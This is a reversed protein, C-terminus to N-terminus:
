RRSAQVGDAKTPRAAPLNSRRPLRDIMRKGQDWRRSALQRILRANQEPDRATLDDVLPDEGPAANDRRLGLRRQRPAQDLYVRRLDLHDHEGWAALCPHALGALPADTVVQRRDEFLDLGLDVALYEARAVLFPLALVAGNWTVVTGADLMPFRRSILTLIEAEPGEYTEDTTPTSLGIATVRNRLPDLQGNVIPEDTCVDLGYIRPLPPM